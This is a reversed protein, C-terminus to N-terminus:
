TTSLPQFQNWQSNCAIKPLTTSYHNVNQRWLHPSSHEFSQELKPFKESDVHKALSPTPPLPHNLLCGWWIQLYNKYSPTLHKNTKSKAM